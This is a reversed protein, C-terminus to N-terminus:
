IYSISDYVFFALDTINNSAKFFSEIKKVFQLRSLGLDATVNYFCIKWNSYHTVFPLDIDRELEFSDNGQIRFLDVPVNKSDILLLIRFIGDGFQNNYLDVCVEHGAVFEIKVPYGNYIYYM